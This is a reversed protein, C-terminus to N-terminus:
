QWNSYNIQLIHIDGSESYNSKKKNINKYLVVIFM